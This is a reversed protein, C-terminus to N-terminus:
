QPHRHLVPPATRLRSSNSVMKQSFIRSYNGRDEFGTPYHPECSILLPSSLRGFLYLFPRSQALVLRGSLLPFMFPVFALIFDLSGLFPFGASHALRPLALLSYEAQACAYPIARFSYNTSFSTILELTHKWLLAPISRQYNPRARAV